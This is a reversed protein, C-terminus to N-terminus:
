LRFFNLPQSSTDPTFTGPVISGLEKDKVM